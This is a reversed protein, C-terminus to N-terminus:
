GVTTLAKALMDCAADIDGAAIGLHPAIRLVNNYLGGKGILLGQDKAAKMVAMTRAPDPEKDTGPKIIEVGQMLGM